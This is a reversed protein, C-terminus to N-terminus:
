NSWQERPLSPIASHKSVESLGSEERAVIKGANKNGTNKKGAHKGNPGNPGFSKRQFEAAFINRILEPSNKKPVSGPKEVKVGVDNVGVDNVGVDNVASHRSRLSFSHNKTSSLFHRLNRPKLNEAWHLAEKQCSFHLNAKLHGGGYAVQLVWFKPNATAKKDNDLEDLVVAGVVDNLCKARGRSAHDSTRWYFICKASPQYEIYRKKFFVWRRLIKKEMKVCSTLREPASASPTQPREVSHKSQVPEDDEQPFWGDAFLFLESLDGSSEARERALGKNPDEFEFSAIRYREM